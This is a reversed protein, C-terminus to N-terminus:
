GVDSGRVGGGGSADFINTKSNIRLTIAVNFASNMTNLMKRTITLDDYTIIAIRLLLHFLKSLMLRM